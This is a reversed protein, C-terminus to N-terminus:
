SRRLGSELVPTSYGRITRRRDRKRRCSVREGLARAVAFVWDEQDETEVAAPRGARVRRIAEGPEHGLAVLCSAAVLGSRDQGGRSYIVVTRGASVDDIIGDVLELFTTMSDARPASLDTTPIRRSFTGHQESHAQLKQIGSIDREHAELLSVLRDAKYHQRLQLLAADGGRDWPRSRDEKGPDLTLGIGGPLGVDAAALFDVRIPDTDATKMRPFWNFCSTVMQSWRRLRPRRASRGARPQGNQPVFPGVDERSTAGARHTGGYGASFTRAPGAPGSDWAIRRRKGLQPAQEYLLIRAPQCPGANHDRM